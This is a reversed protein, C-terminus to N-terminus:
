GKGKPTSETILISKTGVYVWGPPITYVGARKSEITHKYYGPTRGIQRQYRVELARGLRLASSRPNARVKSKTARRGTRNELPIGDVIAKIAKAKGDSGYAAGLYTSHHGIGVYAKWPHTETRTDRYKTIFGIEEGDRVVVFAFDVGGMKIKKLEVLHRDHPFRAPNRKSNMAPRKSRRLMQRATSLQVRDRASLGTATRSKAMLNAFVRRAETPTV